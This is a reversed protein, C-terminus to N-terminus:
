PSAFDALMTPAVVYPFIWSQSDYPASDDYLTGRSLANVGFHQLGDAAGVTWVGTYTNDGNNHFRFRKDRHHLVVIDDNRSTTVTLTVQANPELRLIRRLRHFALPDTLTTDLPGSQVRLSTILTTAGRSTVKVGSIAALRWRVDPDTTEPVRKFLLRRVWHDHLPKHIVTRTSDVPVDGTLINFEGSLFRHVTVVATTPAGTTDPDTFAFELQRDIKTITRWYTLPTIAADAGIPANSAISVSGETGYIGDDVMEPHRDMADQVQAQDPGSSGSSSTPAVVNSSKSCGTVLALLLPLTLIFRHSPTM